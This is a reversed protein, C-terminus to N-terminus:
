ALVGPPPPEARPLTRHGDTFGAAPVTAGGCGKRSLGEQRLAQLLRLGAPVAPPSRPLSAMHGESGARWRAGGQAQIQSPFAAQPLLWRIGTGM